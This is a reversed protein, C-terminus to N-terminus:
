KLKKIIIELEDRLKQTSEKLHTIEDSSDLITKQVAERKEFKINELEDRLVQCSKKLQNVEDANSQIQKQIAEKKKM